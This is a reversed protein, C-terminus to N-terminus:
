DRETEMQESPSPDWLLRPDFSMAALMTIIVVCAFVFTGMGPYVGVLADFRVLAALIAVVLVDVMSWRGIWDVVPYIWTGHQSRESLPLTTLYCLWFMVAIKLIPIVVSALLVVIAVPYAEDQWMLIIGSIITSHISEGLSVTEMMPLLNAPIYLISATILLAMTRQISDPIRQRVKTGCRSCHVENLPVLATCCGCVKLQQSLGTQGAVKGAVPQPAPAIRSWLEHRDVVQFTRLHLLCFLCFAWFSMGLSIDFHSLLKVFSVILGMLFIDVMSWPKLMYLLRAMQVLAPLRIYMGLKLYIIALMCFCPIAQIFLWVLVALWPHDEDLLVASTDLFNMDRHSGAADMGVFPFLNTLLLMFLASLAYLIPRLASERQRADLEHGCRQCNAAEGDQLAPLQQLLDCYRCLVLESDPAKHPEPVFAQSASITESM